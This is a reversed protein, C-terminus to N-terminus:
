SSSNGRYPVRLDVLWADPFRAEVLERVLSNWRACGDLIWSDGTCVVASSAVLRPDVRDDLEVEWGPVAERILGALKGSNSVPRDLLWLVDRVGHADLWDRIALVAAPTHEVTRYTGHVGGIDRCAGDRGIFVPGGAMARELVILTNFGDIVVPQGDLAVQKAVRAAVAPDSAASRLVAKRQRKSLQLRDGVLALAAKDSYGRGLLWSLDECAERLAAHAEPGFHRRDSPEPGRRTM